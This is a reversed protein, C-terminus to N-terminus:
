RTYAMKPLAILRATDKVIWAVALLVLVTCLQVGVDTNLYANLFFQLLAPVDEVAPMNRFVQAVFVLKGLEFLSVGMVLVALMTSSVIPRLAHMVYVRRMVTQKIKSEM